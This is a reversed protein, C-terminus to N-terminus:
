LKSIRNENKTKEKRIKKSLFGENKVVFRTTRDGTMERYKAIAGNTAAKLSKYNGKEIPIRIVDKTGTYNSLIYDGRKIYCVNGMWVNSKYEGKYAGSCYYNGGVFINKKIVMGKNGKFNNGLVHCYKFRNPYDFGSTKGSNVVVNEQFACNLYVVNSDNRLFDEWGQCCDKILNKQVIINSPTAQGRESAQITVGCDYCRSIVCNEVLCSDVDRAVYFEVGNGLATFNTSGIPTMGGIADIKCNRIISHTQAAIGHRGFGEIQVNEITANNMTVGNMGISFELYLLNPDSNLFLYLTDFDVDRTEERRFHETQWFDWNKKLQSRYQLKRGHIKDCDYEHICGVNNAVSSELSVSHGCFGDGKLFIRWINKEVKEWVASSIRKYGCIIPLPGKNYKSLYCNSLSVNEYFVDGCRLLITDGKEIARKITRLPNQESGNNEDNGISSSVYVTRGWVADGGFFSVCIFLVILFIFRLFM